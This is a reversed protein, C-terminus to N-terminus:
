EFNRDLTADYSALRIANKPISYLIRAIQNYDPVFEMCPGCWPAYIDLLLFRHYRIADDISSSTLAIIGHADPTPLQANLFTLSLLILLIKQNM